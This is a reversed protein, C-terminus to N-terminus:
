RANKKERFKNTVNRGDNITKWSENNPLCMKRRWIGDRHIWQTAEYSIITNGKKKNIAFLKIGDKYMARNIKTDAQANGSIHNLPMMAIVFLLPSLVDGQFIGGQFKVEALSKERRNNTGINLKEHNGRYVHSRRINQVSQSLWNDLKAPSYWINRITLGRWLLMEEDREARRLYTSMFTYYIEQKELEKTADKRNM